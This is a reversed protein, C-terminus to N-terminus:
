KSLPAGFHYDLEAYTFQSSRGNPYIATVVSKGWTYGYYLGVSLSHTAAWDASIDALTGLSTHGNSPRGTFGFVKNDYAGGGLYWLDNSSTLQLWHLDSRLALKKAPKDIVSVFEDKNNMLNFCPLRAYGRPTPLLQFFTNHKNDNPNSDGSGRYWGGRLWPATRVRTLQYGAEVAAADGSDSQTGWSGNQYAGWFLFDFQGPGAPAEAILNGGYTGLRINDHDASRVALPRNDTKTLGTRGDHYGIAFARWLVHGHAAQQTFALYQADVNLEPNGNMNFVGQDARAAFATIDWSGRGYHADAGDFSRQANTFGFNGLLRQQIRRTQLWWLTPNRPHTEMGGFFEFRGIRINKDSRTAGFHYRIYGQKFFAAAPWANNGSSAYYTAGLGLQGQAGPAVANSPADLIAPQSLELKWDWHPITQSLSIRLLSDVYGYSNEYPPAAFWQWGEVRARYIVSFRVPHATRTTTQTHTQAIAPLASAACVLLAAFFKQL